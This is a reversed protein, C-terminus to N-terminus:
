AKDKENRKELAELEEGFMRAWCSLVESLSLAMRASNLSSSACSEGLEHALYHARIVIDWMEALQKHTMIPVGAADLGTPPSAPIEEGMAPPSASPDLMNEINRLDPKKTM